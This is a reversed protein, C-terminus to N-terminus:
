CTAPNSTATFSAPPTLLLWRARSRPPSARQRRPRCRGGGMRGALTGGDVFQTVLYVVGTAPDEGFDTCPWSTGPAGTAGRRASRTPVAASLGPRAGARGGAGQGGGRPQAFGPLGPLGDGDRRARGRSQNSIPGGDQRCPRGHIAGVRGGGKSTERRKDERQKRKRKRRSLHSSLTLGSVRRPYDVRCRESMEM